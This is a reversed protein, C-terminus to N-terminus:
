SIYKNFGRPICYRIVNNKDISYDMIPYDNPNISNLRNRSKRDILDNYYSIKYIDEPKLYFGNSNYFVQNAKNLCKTSTYRVHGQQHYLKIVINNSICYTIIAKFLEQNAVPQANTGYFVGNEDQTRIWNYIWKKLGYVSFQSDSYIIISDYLSPFQNIIREAMKIGIYISLLESRNNTSDPSILYTDMDNNICYAGSCGFTRDGFKRMSADVCIELNNM